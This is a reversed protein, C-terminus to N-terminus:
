TLKFNTIAKVTRALSPSNNTAAEIDWYNEVFHIVQGNYDPGIRATSSHAPVIAERIARNHSRKALNILFQKPDAINDVANPILNVSVGLFSALGERDALIWSEAEMVAIRFLLNPHMPMPLWDRIQIPPCEAELDALVLFPTVKSARNFGPLTRKIYGYGGKRYCNGIVMQYQSQKIIKRAIAESLPDEVAINFTIALM